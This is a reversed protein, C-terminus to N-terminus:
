HNALMHMVTALDTDRGLLTTMQRPLNHLEHAKAPAALSGATAERREPASAKAVRTIPGAFRYGRGPVTIIWRYPRTTDALAKRLSWVQPSLNGEEVVVSPWLMKILEDKTALGGERELLFELLELARAGVPVSVGDKTLDARSADFQFPGFCYSAEEM